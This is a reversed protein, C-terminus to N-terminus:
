QSTESILARYRPDAKLHDFDPTDRVVTRPYGASISKALLGMTREVEGFHNYVIAARFLVDADSPASQLARALRAEAQSKEELMAYYDASFALTSAEQPNVELRAEAVEIAKQYASRAESRREPIQFLADGLNGWNLFDNADIKLAQQVAEASESYRRMYFYVAGLNGYADSAPRLAVSQKLADVAEPYRGLLLYIAGLNSYGSYNQPAVQIARKFVEEAESYRAQNYYFTGFSIYVGWYNPRLSIAKRYADEAAPIKGQRQYTDALSRLTEDNNHDLDLSRQFQQVADDYKGTSFFVNGLCTHGEALQPTIALARECDTRAKEMWDKGRNQRQFGANYALGRAAYAPAYNQDLLIARGFDEIANEIADHNRYDELYGRGRLYLDYAAPKTRPTQQLALQQDPHITLSLKELVEDFINDQLGFIDNVDGTVTNAALQTHTHPNILSWTIRIRSGDQQLSGELVLNTGFERQAQDSTKIGKAILDRTSVMQLHGGDVAQVLKATVTETFGLGLANTPPDNAVSEFPLVAMIMEEMVPQPKRHSQWWTGIGLLVVAAAIPLWLRWSWSRDQGSHIPVTGTALNALDIRLDGASQYRQRPDKQLARLIVQELGKSIAPHVQHPPPPSQDLIAAILRAGALDGFPRKGTSMEYLVVGASWLDARADPKEGKLQEPSMYPLTGADSYTETLSVTATPESEAKLIYALGFDLIKLRGDPTIKLNSPKLDRHIVGEKHASELGSALQKGLEFVEPEPLPRGALRLDLTLGSVFETVLYTTGNDEGFDFAMAVHPDTIKALSLAELRFQRQASESLHTLGPLTKLAVDRDLREDHARFVVGMGGAGIHEVIRYHGLLQGVTPLVVTMSPITPQYITFTLQLRAAWSHKRTFM